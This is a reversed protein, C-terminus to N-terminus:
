EKALRRKRPKFSLDFVTLVLGNAGPYCRWETSMASGFDRFHLRLNPENVNLLFGFDASPASGPLIHVDSLQGPPPTVGAPISLSFHLGARSSNPGAVEVVTGATLSYRRVEFPLSGLLRAPAVQM